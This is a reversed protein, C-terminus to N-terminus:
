PAILDTMWRVPPEDRVRDVWREDTLRDFGETIVEHYSSVPGAYARPGMCTEVTVIMLRADGTGAHLVRGVTAGTEDYPQTHVDAITPDRETASEGVFLRAYWGRLIPPGCVDDDEVVAENIFAIHEPSHPLGTRQNHAMEGLTAAVAALEDFWALVFDADRPRGFELAAVRDRGLTAFAGLREYFAPYPDVYADPYDCGGGSAYSQKAYLITDHRLEAWSAMQTNLLRRGWAETAAVAPLGHAAPDIVEDGPSLARLADLWLTYLSQSWYTEPHADALHRMAALAPAYGYRDLEDRLLPLADDNGLAAFAADLPDPMFREPQSRHRDFVVNSFVHSDIVYRQGLLAFARDLPLTGSQLGNVMAHSAIRQAGYGGADIAAAIAADDHRALAAAHETPDPAGLDTMLADLEALRMYDHEGVFAGIADDIRDFRARAPDDILARLVLAAELQDRHFVRDGDPTSQILRLDIRGLWMMAQFYHPLIPDGSGEGATFVYHGRPIFQSFDILRTAGFLTVAELGDAAAVGDLLRTVLAPDGGAIPPLRRDQLLSLAVTLYVDAHDRALPSFADAAGAALRDRMAELLADLDPALARGEIIELLKDYARHVAFLLSDATIYVPIDEAYLTVYGYGHTHFAHRDTM